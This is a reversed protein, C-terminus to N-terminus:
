NIEPSFEALESNSYIPAGTVASIFIDRMNPLKEQISRFEFHSLNSAILDNLSHSEALRFLWTTFEENLKEQLLESNMPLELTGKGTIEFLNKSYKARITEKNGELVLKSKNILCIDDCLEEVTEMRHTSFIVTTGESRMKLIEDRIINANIPDFGSFPEDLILLSPKHLVTAIFQVKQGMGKSLDEVKSNMWQKLEFKEVWPKIRERAESASIGRLEALYILQEGIKMKKYLGREEPLYGIDKTQSESWPKGQFLVSGSDARTIGTIIRILSTKGAGNPGLLGYISGKPVKFSVADLAKHNAYEKTVNDIELIYSM